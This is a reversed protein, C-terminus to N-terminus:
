GYAFPTVLHYYWDAGALSYIKMIAELEGLGDIFLVAEAVNEDSITKELQSYYGMEERSEPPITGNMDEFMLKAKERLNDKYFEATIGRKELIMDNTVRSDSEFDYGYVAYDKFGGNEDASILLFLMSDDWYSHWETHWSWLSYGGKMDQFQEEVRKGFREEIEANIEKVVPEESFIQPVHYSYSETNGESDEYCGEASYLEFISNQRPNDALGTAPCSILLILIMAFATTKRMKKVEKDNEHKLEDLRVLRM